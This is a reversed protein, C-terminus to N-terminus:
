HGKSKAPASLFVQSGRSSFRILRKWVFCLHIFCIFLHIQALGQIGSASCMFSTAPFGRQSAPLPKKPKLSNMIDKAMVWHQEFDAASVPRLLSPPSKMEQMEQECKLCFGPVQSSTNKKRVTQKCVLPQLRHQPPFVLLCASLLALFVM